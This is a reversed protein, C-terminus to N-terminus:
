EKELQKLLAQYEEDKMTFSHEPQPFAGKRV